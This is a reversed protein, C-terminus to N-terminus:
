DRLKVKEIDTWLWVAMEGVGRNSWAYHPIARFMQEHKVIGGAQDVELGLSEGELVVVGGLMDKERRHKLEVSDPLLLNLARGNNDVWEACYVIPGRQLAVKGLNERVNPHSVLRRIPMPLNLEVVDGRKWQRRIQVFGKKLNPVVKEDAAILVVVALRYRM